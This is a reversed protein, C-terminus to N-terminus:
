CLGTNCGEQSKVQIATMHCGGFRDHSLLAGNLIFRVSDPVLKCASVITTTPPPPTKFPVFLDYARVVVYLM